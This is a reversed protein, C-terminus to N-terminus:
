NGGTERERGIFWGARIQMNSLPSSDFSVSSPVFSLPISYIIRGKYGSSIMGRERLPLKERKSRERQPLHSCQIREKMILRHSLPLSPPPFSWRPLLRFFWWLFLHSDKGKTERRIEERGDRGEIGESTIRGEILVSFPPKYPDRKERTSWKGIPYIGKGMSYWTPLYVITGRRRPKGYHACHYVIYRYRFTENLTGESERLMESSAVRFPHFNLSM